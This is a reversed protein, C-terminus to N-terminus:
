FWLLFTRQLHCRNWPFFRLMQGSHTKEESLKRSRKRCKTRNLPWFRHFHSIHFARRTWLTCTYLRVFQLWHRIVFLTKIRRDEESEHKADYACHACRKSCTSAVCVWIGNKKKEAVTQIIHADIYTTYVGFSLCKNIASVVVCREWNKSRFFLVM